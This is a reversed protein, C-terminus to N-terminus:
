EFKVGAEDLMQKTKEAMVVHAPESPHVPDFFLFGTCADISARAKVSSVMKLVSKESPNNVMEEYCTNTTNTFGYHDPFNMMDDFVDSVDFYFWQVSPDESELDAVTKKLSANHKLSLESMLNVADFDKAAPTKGLDPVNVVMIHKAGKQVLRQLDHKIGLIVLNVAGDVDDPVGLYNNSGMWIVYLSSADAKDQHSLLYSDIERRLTFLVEDGDDDDVEESVGAGGFAYDFLHAQSNKPYYMETLLEIWVPGNTFRGHYYPPSLPLEHKMYEYLNGNDSLSDGFVVIKNLSIASAQASFFLTVLIFIIKM